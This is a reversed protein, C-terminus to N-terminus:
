SCRRLTANGIMVLGCCVLLLTGAEPVRGDGSFYEGVIEGSNNIGFAFTDRRLLTFVGDSYLFGRPSCAEGVCEWINGVIQGANNIGFAVTAAGPFSPEGCSVSLVRM